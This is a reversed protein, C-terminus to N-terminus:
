VIAGAGLLEGANGAVDIGVLAVVGVLGIVLGALRRGTAREDRDFPPALLAVLLPVAAIIIAARSSAM